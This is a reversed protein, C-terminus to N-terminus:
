YKSNRKFMGTIWPRKESGGRLYKQYQEKFATTILYDLADSTHGYKEYSVGNKTERTKAKTGDAAEKIYSLDAITNSCGPDICLSLEYIQSELIKNIFNGRTVVAPAKQEIRMAPHFDKLAARIITYDNHGRELRTDQAKGAPDGYVFLGGAHGQFDRAFAKCLGETTNRPHELCYERIIELRTKDKIQCVILTIYPNVNFDFSIHLAEERNYACAQVHRTRDFYKYFEGGSKTFPSGYILMDQLHSPLNQKQNAIYDPPLHKANHYTSCIVVRKNNIQKDFYTRDSFIRTNIETEHAELEFFENLWPVKAPSTLVYLPNYGLISPQRLRGLIVEKLAEERTDKTEDLIAWGITIGDIAKYNDLSRFFLAAGNVFSIIGRYNEFNHTDTKFHPPPQKGVTYHGQNTFENYETWGFVEKWVERIRFLTAMNLQQYTNAAIMGILTPYLSVLKATIIGALHTKGSGQGGLFLNVPANSTFISQQPPSLLGPITEFDIVPLANEEEILKGQIENFFRDLENLYYQKKRNAM